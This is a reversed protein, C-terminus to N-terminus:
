KSAGVYPRYFTQRYSASTNDCQGGRSRGCRFVPVQSRGGPQLYAGGNDYVGQGRFRQVNKCIGASRPKRATFRPEVESMHESDPLLWLDSEHHIELIVYMDNDIGYGVVEEVRDMFVRDVTYDTADEMHEGWAVPIRLIDFGGASVTDIMEKTTVPNGWSTESGGLSDLSNGLNWGTKMDAILEKATLRRMEGYNKRTDTNNCGSLATAAIVASCIIAAAQIKKM